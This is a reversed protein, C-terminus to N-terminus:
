GQGQDRHSMTIQDLRSYPSSPTPHASPFYRPFSLSDRIFWRPPGTWCRPPPELVKRGKNLTKAILLPIYEADSGSPCLFIESGAPLKYLSKLRSRVGEMIDGVTLQKFSPPRNSPV